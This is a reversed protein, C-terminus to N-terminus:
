PKAKRRPSALLTWPGEVAPGVEVDGWEAAYARARERAQKAFWERGVGADPVEDYIDWLEFTSKDDTRRSGRGLRQLAAIASAGAAANIVARLGPIDVGENFVSTAVIVEGGDQLWEIAAMRADTSVAGDVYKVRLGTVALLKALAKAHRIENCFVLAPKSAVRTMEAVIRNRPKSKVIADAYGKHWKDAIVHQACRVMRITPKSLTGTAALEEARMRYIPPGLAAVALVSRRDSRALPTGSLGIRWYANPTAMAVASFSDAALTHSEDVILGQQGALFTLVQTKSAASRKGTLAAALSQFTACTFRAPLWKGDGIFGAQEGGALGNFREMAQKALHARHVVFLWPVPFLMALAVACQTKGAGTPLALIGRRLAIARDVAALQYDRLWSVDVSADLTAPAGPEVDVDFAFGQDAAARKTAGLLGAPFRGWRDLLCLDNEAYSAKGRWDARFGGVKYSLFGALWEQEDETMETVQVRLNDIAVRM